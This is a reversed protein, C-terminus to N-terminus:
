GPPCPQVWGISIWVWGGGQIHHIGEAQPLMGPQTTIMWGLSYGADKTMHAGLARFQGLCANSNPEGGPDAGAVPLLLGMALLVVMVVVIVRRANLM